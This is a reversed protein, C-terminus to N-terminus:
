LSHSPLQPAAGVVREFEAMYRAPDAEFLPRHGLHSTLVLRSGRRLRALARLESAYSTPDAESGLLTVPVSDPIRALGRWPAYDELPRVLFLPAAACLWQYALWELAGLREGDRTPIRHRELGSVSPLHDGERPDGARQTLQHAVLVSALAYGVLGLAVLWAVLRSKARARLM